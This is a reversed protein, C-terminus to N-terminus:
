PDTNASEAAVSKTREVGSRATRGMSEVSNRSKGNPFLQMYKETADVALQYRESQREQVSNDAYLIYSEVQRALAQEAYPTEPFDDVTVQYYMGASQYMKLNFYMDAAKISKVALKNRLEDLHNAAEAVKPSDPYRGIYLRFLDIARYTDTQDLKYRPSMKYYSFAEMYDAEERKESRPYFTVYRKYESAAILYEKNHFYSEALLFQADRSTDSGRGLSLVTEFARAAEGYKGDDFLAKAKSFAVDITDGPKIANKTSCASLAILFLFVSLFHRKM